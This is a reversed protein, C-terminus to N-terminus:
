VASSRDENEFSALSASLSIYLPPPLSSPLSNPLSPPLPPLFQSPTTPKHTPQNTPQATPQQSPPRHLQPAPPPPVPLSLILGASSAGWIPPSDKASLSRFLSVQRFKRLLDRAESRLSPRPQIPGFLPQRGSRPHPGIPLFLLHNTVVRHRWGVSQRAPIPSSHRDTTNRRRRHRDLVFLRRIIHAWRRRIQIPRGQRRNREVLDLTKNM